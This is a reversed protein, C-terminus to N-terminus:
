IKYDRIINPINLDNIDVTTISVRVNLNIMMDNNTKNTRNKRQKGTM